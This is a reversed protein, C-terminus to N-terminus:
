STMTKSYKRHILWNSSIALVLTVIMLILALAAGFPWNSVKSIQGYVAPAMMTLKTGGLLVPTVYGNMCLIFCLMSGAAIGPAAIPLVIRFFTVLSSAGLNRAAEELTLDIGELVSQLTVVMYPLVFSTLGLVVALPTYLLRIPQDILGFTMLVSNAFGANGLIVVWGVARVVGGILMPFILAILLLSKISNRTKVLSYALPFGILLAFFTCVAAMKITAWLVGMYYPSSFFGVYNELTLGSRMMTAADYHNFSFRLLQLAPIATAILIVFAAPVTLLPGPKIGWIPPRRFEANSM